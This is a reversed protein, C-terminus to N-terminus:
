SDGTAVGQSPKLRYYDDKDHFNYIKAIFENDFEGMTSCKRIAEIDFTKPFSKHQREAKQKLTSLFNKAYLLRNIGKDIKAGSQVLDFPISM